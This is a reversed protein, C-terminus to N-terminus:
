DITIARFKHEDTDVNSWSHHTYFASPSLHDRLYVEGIYRFSTHEETIKMRLIVPLSVQELRYILDRVKAERYVAEFNGATTFALRMKYKELTRLGKAFLRSETAFDSSCEASIQSGGSFSAPSSRMAVTRGRDCIDKMWQRLTKRGLQLHGNNGVWRDIVAENSQADLASRHEATLIRALGYGVVNQAHCLQKDCHHKTHDMFANPDNIQVVAQWLNIAVKDASPPSHIAVNYRAESHDAKYTIADRNGYQYQCGSLAQVTALQAGRVVLKGQACSLQPPIGTVKESDLVSDIIWPPLPHDLASWRPTWSPAHSADDSPQVTDEPGDDDPAVASTYSSVSSSSRHRRQQQPVPSLSASSQNWHRISLLSHMSPSKRHQALRTGAHSAETETSRAGLGRALLLVAAHGQKNIINETFGQFVVSDSQFYNPTDVLRTGDHSLHTVAYIKDRPMSAQSHRSLVLATVLSMQSRRTVTQEQEHFQRLCAFHERTANPVLTDKLLSNLDFLNDLFVKLDAIQNGCLIRVKRAKSLEQIIWSRKWYERNVLSAVAKQQEALIEKHAWAVLETRDKPLKNLTKLGLEGDSGDHDSKAPGLWAFVRTAHPYIVHMKAVQQGKDEDNDQDISLSDAWVPSMKQNLLMKLAEYLTKRVSGWHYSLAAYEPVDRLAIPQSTCQILGANNPRSLTILRTDFRSGLPPYLVDRPISADALVGAGGHASGIPITTELDTSTPNDKPTTPNNDLSGTGTVGVDNTITIGPLMATDHQANITPAASSRPVNSTSGGIHPALATNATNSLDSTSSGRSSDGAMLRSWRERLGM